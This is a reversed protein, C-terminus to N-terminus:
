RGRWFLNKLRTAFGGSRGARNQEELAARDDDERSFIQREKNGLVGAVNDDKLNAMISADMEEKTKKLFILRVAERLGGSRTVLELEKKELATSIQERLEEPTYSRHSGQLGDLTAIKELLRALGVQSSEGKQLEVDKFLDPAVELNPIAAEQPQSPMSEERIGEETDGQEVVEGGREFSKSM